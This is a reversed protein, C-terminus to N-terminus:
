SRRSEDTDTPQYYLVLGVLGCDTAVTGDTTVDASATYGSGANLTWTVQRRVLGGNARLPFTQRLQGDVTLAVEIGQTASAADQFIGECAVFQKRVNRHEDRMTFQPMTVQSPLGITVDTDTLANRNVRTGYEQPRVLWSNATEGILVAQEGIFDRRKLALSSPFWVRSTTVRPGSRSFQIRVILDNQAVTAEVAETSRLAFWATKTRPDFVSVLQNLYPTAVHDHTWQTLGLAQTLDSDVTGGLTDVASLLHFHGNPDCFVVDDDISLVAHPSPACGVM